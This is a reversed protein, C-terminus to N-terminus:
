ELSARLTSYTPKNFYRQKTALHYIYRKSEPLWQPFLPNMTHDFNTLYTTPYTRRIKRAIGASMKFDASLCHAISDSSDFVNGIIERYNSQTTQVQPNPQYTPSQDRNPWDGSSTSAHDDFNTTPSPSHERFAEDYSRDVDLSDDENLIANVASPPSRSLGDAHDISKGPRHRVDYDFSALKELWRATMGDPGKFSHLWQLARHDTVFTFKRGLLYHRFHRTFTLIALLECRTASYKSQSKSLAISAYCIARELRDHEQVLVAGMAFQSADTYLIFPKQLSPFALIPTSTLRGKLDDFAEQADSTWQFASSTESAKHLPLAVATFNPVYRRYFSALGLFSKVETQSKPVPFNQVAQVNEPDVQLGDASVIYGLFQM